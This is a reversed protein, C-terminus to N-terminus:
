FRSREGERYIAGVKESFDAVVMPSVEGTNSVAGWVRERKGSKPRETAFVCVGRSGLQIM